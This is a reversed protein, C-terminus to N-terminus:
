TESIQVINHPNTTGPSSRDGVQRVGSTGLDGSELVVGNSFQSGVDRANGTLQNKHGEVSLSVTQCPSHSDKSVVTPAIKYDLALWFSGDRYQDECVRVLFFSDNVKIQIEESITEWR